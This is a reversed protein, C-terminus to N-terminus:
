MSSHYGCTSLGFWLLLAQKAGSGGFRSRTTIRRKSAGSSCTQCAQVSESATFGGTSVLVRIQALHVRRTRCLLPPSLRYGAPSFVERCPECCNVLLNNARDEGAGVLLPPLRAGLGPPRDPHYRM